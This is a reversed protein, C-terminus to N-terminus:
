DIPQELDRDRRKGRPIIYLNERSEMAAISSKFMQKTIRYETDKKSFGMGVIKLIPEDILQKDYFDIYLSVAKGRLTKSEGGGVNIGAAIEPFLAGLDVNYNDGKSGRNYVDQDFGIKIFLDIKLKALMVDIEQESYQRNEKFVDNYYYTGINFYKHLVEAYFVYLQKPSNTEILCNNYSTPKLNKHYFFYSNNDVRVSIYPNNSAKASINKSLNNQANLQQFNGCVIFCVLVFIIPKM